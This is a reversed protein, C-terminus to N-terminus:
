PPHAAPDAAPTQPLTIEFTSNGPLLEHNPQLALPPHRHRGCHAVFLMISYGTRRASDDFQWRREAYLRIVAEVWGAGYLDPWQDAFRLHAEIIRGGITELNLM